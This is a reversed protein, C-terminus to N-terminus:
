ANSITHVYIANLQNLIHKMASKRAGCIIANMSVNFSELVLMYITVLSMIKNYLTIGLKINPPGDYYLYIRVMDSHVNNRYVIYKGCSGVSCLSFLLM